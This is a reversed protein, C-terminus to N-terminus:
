LMNSLQIEEIMSSLEDLSHLMDLKMKDVKELQRNVKRMMNQHDEFAKPDGLKNKAERGLEEKKDKLEQKSLAHSMDILRIELGKKGDKETPLFLLSADAMVYDSKKLAKKLGNLANKVAELQDPPLKEFEAKIITKTKKLTIMRKINNLVFTYWTSKTSQQFAFSCKSLNFYQKRIFQYFKSPSSYGHLKSEMKPGQLSPRVLKIDKIEEKIVKQTQEAELDDVLDRIIVYAQKYEEKKCLQEISGGCESLAAEINIEKGNTDFVAIYEPMYKNLGSELEKPSKSIQYYVIAENLSDIKKVRAEMIKGDKTELKVKGQETAGSGKIALANTILKAEWVRGNFDTISKPANTVNNFIKTLQSEKLPKQREFKLDQFFLRVSPIKM